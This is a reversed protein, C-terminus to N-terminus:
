AVGTGILYSSSISSSKHFVAPRADSERGSERTPRPGPRAFFAPLNKWEPPTEGQLASLRNSGQDAYIDTKVTHQFSMTSLPFHPKEGRPVNIALDTAASDAM